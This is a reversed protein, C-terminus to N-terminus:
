FMDGQVSREKFGLVSSSGFCRFAVPSFSRLKKWAMTFHSQPLCSVNSNFDFRDFCAIPLHKNNFIAM